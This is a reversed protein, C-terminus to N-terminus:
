DWKRSDRVRSGASMIAEGAGWAEGLRQRLGQGLAAGVMWTWRWRGTRM